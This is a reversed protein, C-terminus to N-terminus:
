VYEHFIEYQESVRANLIIYENVYTCMNYKYVYIVKVIALCCYVTGNVKIFEECEQSLTGCLDWSYNYLGVAKHNDIIRPVETNCCAKKQWSLCEDFVAEEPSPIERHFPGSLCTSPPGPKHYQAVNQFSPQDQQQCYVLLLLTCAFVISAKSM